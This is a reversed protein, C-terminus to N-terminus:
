SLYNTIDFDSPLVFAPRVGYLDSSKSSGNTGRRSVFGVQYTSYTSPSRLWWDTASGNLYAIRKNLAPTEKGSDFYSLKVGDAPFYGSDSATFGVEYGSLLFIKAPLGNPGSNVTTGSTGPRYPIKVEKIATQIDTDFLGLFTGNLYTHITSSSYSNRDSSHWQRTEYIDKMLLWTGNCSNDYLSSPLGQQVVWFEKEAGNVNFYLSSGIALSSAPTGFSIDYSTGNVLTKGGAIHYGSGNILAKGGSIEYSTGGILTRHAM